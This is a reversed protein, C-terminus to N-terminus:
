CLEINNRAFLEVIEKHIVTRVDFKHAEMCEARIALTMKGGSMDDIGGYTPGSIIYPSKDKIKPLEENLLKEIELVNDSFPINIQVDCFSTNRTKNVINTLDRNNISKIDQNNSMLRTSRIGIEIVRGKYGGVEIIDGVQFEDEFIIFLGSIIDTILNQAGLGVVLTLLGASVLLSQSDFGFMNLSYFIMGLTLIYRSFSRILRISTERKPSVMKIVESLIGDVMTMALLFIGVLIIVETLAFVNLGKEWKQSVIFGFISNENYLRDKFLFLIVFIFAFINLLIQVAFSTKAEPTKDNWHIRQNMVRSIINITQKVEGDATPVDVYLDETYEQAAEVPRGKMTQFFFILGLMGTVLAIGTLLLRGRFINDVSDGLFVLLEDQEFSELYYRTGRINVRGMYGARLMEEKFGIQTAQLGILQESKDYAIRGTERDIAFVDDDTGAVASELVKHLRADAIIGELKEPSVAVQLFGDMEGELDYTLVGIYQRYTGTLEEEQAEQIVYPIGNKLLNFAYSQDEPNDSIVFGVIYSDSLTEVGNRDFMMIFEFDFIESLTALEKRTRLEPHESLIHSTIQAKSLYSANYQETIKEAGNRAEAASTVIEDIENGVGLSHLSLYFLSQIYYSVIGILMLGALTFYTMKKLVADRTYVQPGDTQKGSRAQQKTFYTYTTVILIIVSMYFIMFFVVTYSNRTMRGADIGCAVTIGLNTNDISSTYYRDGNIKLWKSKLKSLDDMTIGLSTINKGIFESDPYYVIEGTRTTIIIFLEDLDVIKQLIKNDTYINDLIAQLDYPAKEVTVPTGDSTYATYYRYGQELHVDGIYIGDVNYIKRLEKNITLGHEYELLYALSEAKAQISQDYLETVEATEEYAKDFTEQISQLRENLNENQKYETVRTEVFFLFMSSILLVALDFLLIHKLSIGRKQRKPKEKKEM